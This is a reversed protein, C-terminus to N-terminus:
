RAGVSGAPFWAQIHEAAAVDAVHEPEFGLEERMRGLEAVVAPLPSRSGLLTALRTAYHACTDEDVSALPPWTERLVV